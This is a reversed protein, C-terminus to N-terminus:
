EDRSKLSFAIWGTESTEGIWKGCMQFLQVTSPAFQVRCVVVTVQGM